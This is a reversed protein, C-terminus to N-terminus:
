MGRSYILRGVARRGTRGGTRGDTQGGAGQGDTHIKQFNPFGSKPFNTFGCKQSTLFDMITSTPFDHIRSTPFDFISSDFLCCFSVCADVVFDMDALINALRPNASFLVVFLPGNPAM